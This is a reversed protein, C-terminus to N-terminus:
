PQGEHKEYDKFYPLKDHEGARIINYYLRWLFVKIKWM